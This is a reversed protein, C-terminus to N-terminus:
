KGAALKAFIQNLIAIEIDSLVGFIEDMVANWDGEVIPVMRQGEETLELICARRDKGDKAKRILGKEILKDTTVTVGGSSLALYEMLDKAQLPGWKKMMMLTMAQSATLGSKNSRTWEAEWM